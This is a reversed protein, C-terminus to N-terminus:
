EQTDGILPAQEAFAEETGTRVKKVIGTWVPNTKSSDYTGSAVDAEYAASKEVGNKYVPLEKILRFAAAIVVGVDDKLDEPVSAYVEPKHEEIWQFAIPLVFSSVWDSYANLAEMGAIWSPHMEWDHPRGHVPPKPHHPACYECNKKVIPM